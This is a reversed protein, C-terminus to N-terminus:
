SKCISPKPAGKSSDAKVVKINGKLPKVSFLPHAQFQASHLLSGLLDDASLTPGGAQRTDRTMRSTTTPRPPPKYSAQQAMKIELSHGAEIMGYPPGRQSWRRGEFSLVAFPKISENHQRYFATLIQSLGVLSLNFISFRGLSSHTIMGGDTSGRWGEASELHPVVRSLVM